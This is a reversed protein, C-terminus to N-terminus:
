AQKAYGLLRLAGEIQEDSRISITTEKVNPTDTWGERAKQVFIDSVQGKDQLRQERQESILRRAKTLVDSFLLNNEVQKLTEEPATSVNLLEPDIGILRYYYPKLEMRQKYSTICLDVVKFGERSEIEGTTLYDREGQAYINGVESNVNLANWIGMETYSATRGKDNIIKADQRQFYAAIRYAMLVPNTYAPAHVAHLRDNLAKREAKIKANHDKLADSAKDYKKEKPVPKRKM